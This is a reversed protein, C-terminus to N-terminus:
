APGWGGLDKAADAFSLGHKKQHFSLLDGRGCGAFCCWGGHELNVTLSAHQDDHFPCRAPVWGDKTERSTKLASGLERRYYTEPAPLRERRFTRLALRMM